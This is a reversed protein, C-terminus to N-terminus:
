RLMTEETQNMKNINYSTKINQLVNKQKVIFNIKEIDDSYGEVMNNSQVENSPLVKKAFDLSMMNKEDEIFQEINEKKVSLADNEIFLSRKDMYLPLSIRQSM